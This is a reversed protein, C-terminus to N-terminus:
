SLIEIRRRARAPRAQAFPALNATQARARGEADMIAAQPTAHIREGCVKACCRADWYSDPKSRCIKAYGLYNRGPGGADSAYTAIYFGDFPGSIQEM